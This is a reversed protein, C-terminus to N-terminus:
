LIFGNVVPRQLKNDLVKVPNVYHVYPIKGLIATNRRPSIEIRSEVFQPEYGHSQLHKVGKDWEVRDEKGQVFLDETESRTPFVLEGDQCDDLYLVFFYNGFYYPDEFHLGYSSNADFFKTTIKFSSNLTDLDITKQTFEFSSNILKEIIGIGRKDEHIKYNTQKYSYFTKNIITDRGESQIDYMAAALMKDLIYTKDLEDIADVCHYIGDALKNWM